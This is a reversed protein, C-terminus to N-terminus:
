RALLTNRPNLMMMNKKNERDQLQEPMLGQGTQKPRAATKVAQISQDEEEEQIYGGVQRMQRADANMEAQEMMRQLEDPGIEETAKATIVFEGDSLRAPISDSIGTGPGEVPGSGSFESATEIVQDFIMSLREDENLTAMLYEEDDMSLSEGIIFDVYNDEMEEDPVMGEQAFDEAQAEAIMQDDPMIEAMQADVNGGEQFNQRYYDVLALLEDRYNNVLRDPLNQIAYDPNGVYADPYDQMRKIRKQLSKLQNPGLKTLINFEPEKQSIPRKEASVTIEELSPLRPQASVTIEELLAKEEPSKITSKTPRLVVDSRTDSVPKDEVIGRVPEITDSFLEEQRQLIQQNIEELKTKEEETPLYKRTIKRLERKLNKLISDERLLKRQEGGRAKPERQQNVLEDYRSRVDDITFQENFYGNRSANKYIEQIGSDIFKDPAGILTSLSKDVDAGIQMDAETYGREEDIRPQLIPM